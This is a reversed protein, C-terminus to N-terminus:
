SCGNVTYNPGDDIAPSGNQSSPVTVEATATTSNGSSDTVKFTITYVRGNGSGMREARLQVSKCGDAILIDNTTNGDGSGNEPEDSTVGAIVVSNINVGPDCLDSASAVLDTVQITIYKHDPPWLTITHGNLTIVPADIDKVTVTFSCASSNGAADTATAHVTTTGVPFSSGSLHDTTVTPVSCNDTATATFNVPSACTGSIANVIINGPCSISPPTNDIVTITQSANAANTAADTATFTRTIVLPSAISGAGGNNTESVTVTPTGCNDSATAQSPDAAPVEGACQYSADPPATIAPKQTDNVTVKFSCTPGASSTCKVTTDGLPFFAGSLHDCTVTGCADGSPPTYTVVAGCQDTDNGTSVDAPCTLTCIPQLEFAGIDTADSTAANVTGPDDYTRLMGRQDTSAGAAVGADIAPSGPNLAMTETPGGNDALASLMPNVGTQDGTGTFGIASTINGILNHGNSTVSGAVDPGPTFAGPNAGVGNAATNGAIITNELTATGFAVRIGGGTGEAANQAPLSVGPTNVGSNGAQANNLSITAHKVDLTATNNTLAGGYAAGGAGHRALGCSGGNNKGGNGGNGGQALNNAFTSTDISASGGDALIAGGRAAGGDGGEHSGFCDPGFADGGVGGTATTLHFTSNRVTLNGLSYVGGGDAQGAPEAGNGGAGSNGGNAVTSEFTTNNITVTGGGIWVGGGQAFGGFGGNLMGAQSVSGGNGGNAADNALLSGDIDLTGGEFYIAGGTGGSAQNNNVGGPGDGGQATNNSLTSNSVTVSGTGTSALGAGRADLVGPPNANSDGRGIAQCSHIKVNTLTLTGGNNLIGGGLRHTTQSAPNTSTAATGDDTATGNRIVLDQFTVTVGSHTIQFARDHSSGSQLGGADIITANPGSSGGGIITMSHLTTTIDLDGTLAGNEQSANTLTLNYTTATQLNIIIPTAGPDNNAAIIAGRLSCDNAAVTCARAAVAATDDTRDVNFTTAFFPNLNPPKASAQRSIFPHNSLSSSSVSQSFEVSVAVLAVIMLLAWPITRKM